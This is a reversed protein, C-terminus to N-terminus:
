ADLARFFLLDGTAPDEISVEYWGYGDAAGERILAKTNELVKPDNKWLRRLDREFSKLELKGDDHQEVQGFSINSYEMAPQIGGNEFLRFAEVGLFRVNTTSCDDILKIADDAPLLLIGHRNKIRDIYKQELETATM